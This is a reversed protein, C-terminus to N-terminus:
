IDKKLTRSALTVLRGAKPLVTIKYTGDERSFHGGVGGITAKQLSLRTSSRYDGTAFKHWLRLITKLGRWTPRVTRHIDFRIQPGRQT